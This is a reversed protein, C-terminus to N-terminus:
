QFQRQAPDNAVIRVRLGARIAGHVARGPRNFVHPCGLRCGGDGCELRGPPSPGGLHRGREHFGERLHKPVRPCFGGPKSQRTCQADDCRGHTRGRGTDPARGQDVVADRIV